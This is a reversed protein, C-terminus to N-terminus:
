SRPTPRPACDTLPKVCFHKVHFMARPRHSHAAISFITERSVDHGHAASRPSPRCDKKRLFTERSVDPARARLVRNQLVVGHMLFDDKNKLSMVIRVEPVHSVVLSRHSVRNPPRSFRITCAASDANPLPWSSVGPTRSQPCSRRAQSPSGVLTEMQWQRSQWRRAPLTKPTCARKRRSCTVAMSPRAVGNARRPSLPLGM